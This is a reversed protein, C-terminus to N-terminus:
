IGIAARIKARFLYVGAAIAVVVVLLVLKGLGGGGKAARVSAGPLEGGGVMAVHNVYMGASAAKREAAAKSNAEFQLTMRVGTDRNQGTVEWQM